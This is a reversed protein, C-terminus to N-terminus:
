CGEPPTNLTYGTSPITEILTPEEPDPEVKNRLRYVLQKLMDRTAGGPGWVHVILSGTPLIQDANQMLTGLLRAELRTLHIVPCDRWRAERRELNLNLPGANLIRGQGEGAARRLVARVRAVLQRPSYPKTIYEDAGAELAAIVDDDADRVTLMIIPVESEARLRTCVELGDLYPLNWALIVLQPQERSFEDLAALGDHALSVEFGGRRLTFALVDALALDDDVILIKALDIM